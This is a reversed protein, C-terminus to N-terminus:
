RYKQLITPLIRQEWEELAFKRAEELFNMGPMAPRNWKLGFHKSSAIRFTVIDRQITKKGKADVAMSQYIRVGDLAPSTWGVNYKTAGRQEGGLDFAHLRGIKPTGDHGREIKKYPVGRKKLESRLHKNLRQALKASQSDGRRQNAEGHKFPIIVYRHGKKSTKAKPSRLLAPLMSGAQLGEEIWMVEAPITMVWTHEDTQQVKLAKRFMEQRSHLRENVQELVHAHVSAQLNQVGTILDKALEQQRGAFEELARDFNLDLRIDM